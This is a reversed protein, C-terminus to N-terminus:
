IVTKPQFGLGGHLKAVSKVPPRPFVMFVQKPQLGLYMYLECTATIFTGGGDFNYHQDFAAKGIGGSKFIWRITPCSNRM